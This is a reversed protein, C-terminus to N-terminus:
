TEDTFGRVSFDVEINEKEFLPVVDERVWKGKCVGSWKGFYDHGYDIIWEGDYLSVFHKYPSNVKAEEWEWPNQEDQLREILKERDWLTAQCTNLYESNQPKLRFGFFKSLLTPAYEQEFSFCAIDDKMEYICNEIIDTRVKKRIFFDDCMVIVYKTPIEELSKRIRTTWQSIPYNHRLAIAYECLKTETAIYTKYDCNWYRSKLTFFPEWLDEYADCSLVLISTDNM